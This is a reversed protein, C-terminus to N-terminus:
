GGGGRSYSWRVVEERGVREKEDQKMLARANYRGRERERERERKGENEGSAREREKCRTRDAFNRQKHM